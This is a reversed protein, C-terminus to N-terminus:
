GTTFAVEASLLYKLGRAELQDDRIAASIPAAQRTSQRVVRGQNAGPHGVHQAIGGVQDTVREASAHHEFCTDSPRPRHKRHRQEHRRQTACM